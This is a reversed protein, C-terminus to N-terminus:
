SHSMMAQVLILALVPQSLLGILVGVWGIRFPMFLGGWIM